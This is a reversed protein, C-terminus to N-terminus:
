SQFSMFLVVLLCLIQASPGDMLTRFFSLLYQASQSCLFAIWAGHDLRTWNCMMLSCQPDVSSAQLTLGPAMGNIFGVGPPLVAPPAVDSDALNPPGVWVKSKQASGSIQRSANVILCKASELEAKNPLPPTRVTTIWFSFLSKLYLLKSFLADFYSGTVPNECLSVSEM